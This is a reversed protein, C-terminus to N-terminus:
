NQNMEQEFNRNTCAEEQETIIESSLQDYFKFVTVLFYIALGLVIIIPLLFVFKWYTDPSRVWQGSHNAFYLFLVTLLVATLGLCVMFPILCFKEKKHAGIFGLIEAGLWIVCIVIQIGDIANFTKSGDRTMLHGAVFLVDIATLALFVLSMIKVRTRLDIIWQVSIKCM